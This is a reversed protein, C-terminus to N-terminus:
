EGMAGQRILKREEARRQKEERWELKKMERIRKKQSGRGARM